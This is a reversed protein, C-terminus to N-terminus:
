KGEKVSRPDSKLLSLIQPLIFISTVLGIAIGLSMLQGISYMGTFKSILLSSFGFLSTLSSMIIAKGTSGSFISLKGDERYRDIIYVGFAVDIGIILPLTVINAPNFEIGFWVMAGTRWLVALVLPTLTLLERGDSVIGVVDFHPQLLGRLGEAVVRHDDALLVRPNKM